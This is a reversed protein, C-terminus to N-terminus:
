TNRTQSSSLAWMGVGRRGVGSKQVSPTSVSATPVFCSTSIGSRADPVMMPFPPSLTRVMHSSEPQLIWSEPRSFCTALSEM